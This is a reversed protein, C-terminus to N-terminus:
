GAVVTEKVRDTNRMEYRTRFILGSYITCYIIIEDGALKVDGYHQERIRFVNINCVKMIFVQTVFM